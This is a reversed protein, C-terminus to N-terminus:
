NAVVEKRKTKLSQLSIVIAIIVYIASSGGLVTLEDMELFRGSFNLMQHLLVAYLLNGGQSFIKGIIVSFAVLGVFFFVIYLLLNVGEFGSIFWLPLHWIGWIGGVILSSNLVSFRKNLEIQLYGRWGLEEGLPGRILSDFFMLFVSGLSLKAVLDFLAKGSIMSYGVWVIITAIVPIFISALLPLAKIPTAFRDAIYQWLSRGPDVRRHVIAFAISPTWAMIIQALVILYNPSEVAFLIGTIGFGVIFLVFTLLLFLNLPKM